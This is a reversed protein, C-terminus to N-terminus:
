IDPLQLYLIFGTKKAPLQLLLICETTGRLHEQKLEYVVRGLIYGTIVAVPLFVPELRIFLGAKDIVNLFLTTYLYILLNTIGTAM